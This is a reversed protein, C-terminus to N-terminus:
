AWPLLEERLHAAAEDSREPMGQLDLYTQIASVCNIGKVTSEGQFVGEDNPRVLWLNSGKSGEHWKLSDLVSDGVRKAVYM